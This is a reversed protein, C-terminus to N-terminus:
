ECCQPEHEKQLKEWLCLVKRPNQYHALIYNTECGANYFREDSICQVKHGQEKFQEIWIGVAVDELKFLEASIYWKNDKDRHPSSEFSILGYLLGNSVKKGKLSSLVEDVRVFADDDTKMIYKAPLIQTGLICIAVTKLTLLSYYDVFPMLQIDEYAQAEKWLQFNVQKNKHLGIFFRVAVNGSRIAEYQMWSRRLAMRREFNNGTSFVGILMELRKKSIPPAKLHEVDVILDLDESVPLGKAIASILDLGGAVKVGSVLWPELKKRYAFSTEHRGNVTMHFGELGVWLTATFPNGEVFPFNASVHASGNSVNTLKDGDPHSANLNKMGSGCIGYSFQVRTERLNAGIDVEVAGQVVWAPEETFLRLDLGDIVGDHVARREPVEEGGEGLDMPPPPLCPKEREVLVISQEEVVAYPPGGFRFMVTAKRKLEKNEAKLVSIEARADKYMRQLLALQSNLQQVENTRSQLRHSLNTVATMTEVCSKLTYQNAEIDTQVAMKQEVSRMPFNLPAFDSTNPQPERAVAGTIERTSENLDPFLTLLGRSSSAMNQTASRSSSAMNKPNSLTEAVCRNGFHIKWPDSLVRYLTEVNIGTLEKMPGVLSQLSDRCQNRNAGEHTGYRVKRYAFSTEHRGNVTMHFGELGVWLTATFPNGEVFPFNASVHASGNSVNTLKDGDPHSANLNQEVTSRVVQENCKMHGDLTIGKLANFSGHDPCREEKGWGLESTWTNQVIVPEETLNDGPLSVNYHLIVPPTAEETFQSGVLKIQFTGRHGDPIGIVTISSDEVLGCPIQLVSGSSSITSNFATISYPCDKHENNNTEYFKSAKEKEIVSLLEKWAISAEKIGQATEPLADSRSLLSHMQAWVLFAKSEESSINKPSYLDRLGKIDILHPKKKVNIQLIKTTTQSSDAEDNDRIIDYDDPPHNNFFDYSSQKQPQKKGMFCYRLFLISALALILLGGSWKKM